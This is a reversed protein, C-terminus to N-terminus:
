FVCFYCVGVTAVLGEFFFGLEKLSSSIKNKTKRERLKLSM